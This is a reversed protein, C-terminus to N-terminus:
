DLSMSGEPSVWEIPWHGVPLHHRWHDLARGCIACIGASPM